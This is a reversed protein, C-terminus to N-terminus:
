PRVSFSEFTKNQEFQSQKNVLAAFEESRCHLVWESAKSKQYLVYIASGVIKVTAKNHL